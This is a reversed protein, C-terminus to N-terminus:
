VDNFCEVANRVIEEEEFEVGLGFDGATGPLPDMGEEGATGEKNCLAGV